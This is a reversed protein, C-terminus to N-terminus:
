ARNSDFCADAALASQELEGHITAKTGLCEIDRVARQTYEIYEVIWDQCRQIERM